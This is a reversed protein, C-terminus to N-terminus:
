KVGASSPFSSRSSQPQRNLRRVRIRRGNGSAEGNSARTDGGDVYEFRPVCAGNVTVLEAFENKDRLYPGKSDDIRHYVVFQRESDVLIAVYQVRYMGGKFHRYTGPRIDSTSQTNM